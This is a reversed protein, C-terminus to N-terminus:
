LPKLHFVSIIPRELVFNYVLPRLFFADQSSFRGHSKQIEASICKERREGPVSPASHSHETM